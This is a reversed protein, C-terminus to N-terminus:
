PNVAARCRAIHDEDFQRTRDFKQVHRRQYWGGAATHSHTIIVQTSGDGQPVFDTREICSYGIKRGRWIRPHCFSLTGTASATFRDGNRPAMGSPDQHSEMQQHYDWGNRDKWTVTRLRVGNATSATQSIDTVGLKELRYPVDDNWRGPDFWWSMVREPSANIIGATEISWSLQGMGRLTAMAM